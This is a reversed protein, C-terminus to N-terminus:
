AWDEHIGKLVSCPFSSLLERRFDSTLVREFWSGRRREKRKGESEPLDRLSRQGPPTDGPYRGVLLGALGGSHHACKVLPKLCLLTMFPEM